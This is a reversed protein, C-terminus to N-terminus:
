EREPGPEAAHRLKFLRARVAGKRRGFARALEDIPVDAARLELLRREDAATWRTNASALDRHVEGHPGEPDEAVAHGAQSANPRRPPFAAPPAPRPDDHVEFAISILASVPLRFVLEGTHWLSLRGSDPECTLRDALVAFSQPLGPGAAPRGAEDGPRPVARAADHAAGRIELRLMAKIPRGGDPAPTPDAVDSPRGGNDEYVAEGV